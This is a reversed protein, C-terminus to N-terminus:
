KTERRNLKECVTATRSHQGDAKWVQNMIEEDNIEIRRRRPPPLPGARLTSSTGRDNIM